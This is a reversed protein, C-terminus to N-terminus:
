QIPILKIYELDLFTNKVLNGHGMVLKIKGALLEVKGVRVPRFKDWGGTGQTNFSAKKGDVEVYAESGTYENPVAYSVEIAYSGQKKVDVEWTAVDDAFWYALHGDDNIRIETTHDINVKDPLLTISGDKSDENLEKPSEISKNFVRKGAKVMRLIVVAGEGRTMKNQPKFSKDEYGTIIGKAYAKVINMRQENPISNIDTIQSFYKEFNDEFKENKLAGALIKAMQARTISMTYDSFDKDAIIGLKKAKDIYTSAWYEQGYPRWNGKESYEKSKCDLIFNGTDNRLLVPLYLDTNFTSPNAKVPIVEEMESQIGNKYESVRVWRYLKKWVPYTDSSNEGASLVAYQGGPVNKIKVKETEQVDQGVKAWVEYGNGSSLINESVYFGFYQVNQQDGLKNAISFDKLAEWAKEIADKGFARYYAVRM